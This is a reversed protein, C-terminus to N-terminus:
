NRVVQRESYIVFHEGEEIKKLRRTAAGNDLGPQPTGAAIAFHNGADQMFLPNRLVQDIQRLRFARELRQRERPGTRPSDPLEDSIASHFVTQPVGPPHVFSLIWFLGRARGRLM